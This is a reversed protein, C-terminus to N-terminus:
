KSLAAALACELNEVTLDLVTTKGGSCFAFTPQSKPPDSFLTVARKILTLNDGLYGTVGNEACYYQEGGPSLWRRAIVWNSDKYSVTDGIQFKFNSFDTM